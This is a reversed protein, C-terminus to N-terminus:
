KLLEDLRNGEESRRDLRFRLTPTKHTELRALRKQFEHKRSELFKLAADPNKLATVYVTAFSLDSSVGVETMAVIGCDPPCERLVPAIIERVSSALMSPRHSM